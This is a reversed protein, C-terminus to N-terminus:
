SFTVSLIDASIAMVLLKRIDGPPPVDFEQILRGSSGGDDSVSVIASLNDIDIIGSCDRTRDTYEKIGSLLSSLGTGGGICVLRLASGDEM